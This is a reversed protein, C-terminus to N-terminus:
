GHGTKGDEGEIRGELDRLLKEARELAETGERGVRARANLLGVDLDGLGGNTITAESDEVDKDKDDGPEGERHARVRPPIYRVTEAPVVGQSQLSSVQDKLTNRTTNILRFLANASANFSAERAQTSDTPNSSVPSKTLQSVATGFHLLIHPLSENITSLQRINDAATQQYPQPLPQPAPAQASPNPSTM